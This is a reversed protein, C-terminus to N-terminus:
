LEGGALAMRHKNCLSIGTCPLFERVLEWWRGGSCKLSCSPFCYDWKTKLEKGTTPLKFMDKCRESKEVQHTEGGLDTTKETRPMRGSTVPHQLPYWSQTTLTETLSANQPTWNMNRIGNSWGYSWLLCKSLRKEWLVKEHQSSPWSWCVAVISEEFMRIRYWFHHWTCM